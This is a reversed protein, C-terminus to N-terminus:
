VIHYFLLCKIDKRTWKSKIFLGLVTHILQEPDSSKMTQTSWDAVTLFLVIM